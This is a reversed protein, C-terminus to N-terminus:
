LGSSSHMGAVSFLAFASVSDARSYDEFSHQTAVAFLAEARARIKGGREWSRAEGVCDENRQWYPDVQEEERGEKHESVLAPTPVEVGRCDM